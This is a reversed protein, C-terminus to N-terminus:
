DSAACTWNGCLLRPPSPQFGRVTPRQKWTNEVIWPFFHGLVKAIKARLRYDNGHALGACTALTRAWPRVGLAGFCTLYSTWTLSYFATLALDHSLMVFDLFLFNYLTCCYLLARWHVSPNLAVCFARTSCLTEAGLTIQVWAWLRVAVQRLCQSMAEYQSLKDWLRSSIKQMCSQGALPM